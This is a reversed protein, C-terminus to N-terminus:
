TVPVEAAPYTQNSVHKQLWLHTLTCSARGDVGFPELVLIFRKIAIPHPSSCPSQFRVTLIQARWRVVQHDWAFLNALREFNLKRMQVIYLIISVSCATNNVLMQEWAWCHVLNGPGPKTVHSLKEGTSCLHFSPSSSRPRLRSVTPQGRQARKEGEQHISGIGLPHHLFAMSPVRLLAGAM